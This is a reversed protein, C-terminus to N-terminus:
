SFTNKFIKCFFNVPFCSHWLRKELLTAPRLSAIKNLFLSACTNEQSNQLIELSVKKVSCRQTVAEIGNIKYVTKWAM